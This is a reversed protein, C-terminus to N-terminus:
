KPHNIALVRDVMQDHAEMPLEDLMQACFCIGISHKRHANALELLRDYAGKGRGLRKGGKTFALGPVLMLDLHAICDEMPVKILPQRLQARFDLYDGRQLDGLLSVEGLSLKGDEELFPYYCIKGAPLFHLHWLQDIDPEDNLPAFLLIRKANKWCELEVLKQVLQLSEAQREQSSVKALRERMQKRLIQKAEKSM